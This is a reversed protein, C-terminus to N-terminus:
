VTNKNKVYNNKIENLERTGRMIIGNDLLLLTSLAGEEFWIQYVLEENKNKNCIIEDIPYYTMKVTDNEIERDECAIYVSKQNNFIFEIPLLESTNNRYVVSKHHSGCSFATNNRLYVTYIYEPMEDQVETYIKNIKERYYSKFLRGNTRKKLSHVAINKKEGNKNIIRIKNDGLLLAGNYNSPM